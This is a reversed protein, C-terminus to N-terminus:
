DRWMRSRTARAAIGSRAGSRSGAMRSAGICRAPLEADWAPMRMVVCRLEDDRVDDRLSSVDPSDLAQDVGEIPEAHEVAPARGWAMATPAVAIYVPDLLRPERELPPRVNEQHKDHTPM